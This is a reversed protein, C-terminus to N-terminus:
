LGAGRDDPALGSADGVAFMTRILAREAAGIHPNWADFILVARREGSDNVAEHEITDDFAFAEGERWARTEGGVRFRCDEPVILPLHIIARINTVGTHPPIATHPELISFFATPGRGPIDARPLAELAAATEPCRACLAEDKVGYEWLFMAGWALSNDLPTWKNDPTGSAQAVYPRLPADGRAMLARFEDRIAPTRAEIQPLWPFHDRDFFEDPPLFPFYVGHCENRYVRRRGLMTEVCADFRRLDQPALGARAVELGDAMATGLADRHAAVFARGHAAAEAIGPPLQGAQEALMVVGSWCQAAAGRRGTRELLEAKRLLAMFHRQDLSLAADLSALEGDDDGRLRQAKAVNLWLAPEKPDGAVARRFHGEAEALQGSDMALMGLANHAHPNAPDAAIVQGFLRAAESANGRQRAQAAAALLKQVDQAM